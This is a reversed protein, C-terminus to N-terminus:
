RDAGSKQLDTQRKSRAKAANLAAAASFRCGPLFDQGLFSPEIMSRRGMVCYRRGVLSFQVRLEAGQGLGLWCRNPMTRKLRVSTRRKGKM